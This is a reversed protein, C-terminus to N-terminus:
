IGSRGAIAANKPGADNSWKARLKEVLDLLVQRDFYRTFNKHGALSWMSKRVPHSPAAEVVQNSIQKWSEYANIDAVQLPVVVRKNEVAISAFGCASKLGQDKAVDEFVKVIEGMGSDGSGLVYAIPQGQRNFKALWTSVELLCGNVYLAVPSPM